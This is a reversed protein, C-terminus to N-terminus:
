WTQKAPKGDLARLATDCRDLTWDNGVMAVGLVSCAMAEGLHSSSLESYQCRRRLEACSDVSRHLFLSAVFAGLGVAFTTWIVRLLVKSHGRSGRARRREQREDGFAIDPHAMDDEKM